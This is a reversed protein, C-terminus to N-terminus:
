FFERFPPLEFSKPWSNLYGFFKSNFIWGLYKFVTDHISPRGLINSNCCSWIRLRIAFLHFGSLGIDNITTYKSLLRMRLNILFISKEDHTRFAWTVYSYLFYTKACANAPWFVWCHILEGLKSKAQKQLCKLHNWMLPMGFPLSYSSIKM